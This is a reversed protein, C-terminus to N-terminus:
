ENKRILRWYGPKPTEINWEKILKRLTKISVDYLKALKYQPSEWILNQLNERCKLKEKLIEMTEKHESFNRIKRKLGLKYPYCVNIMENFIRSGLTLVYFDENKRIQIKYKVDLANKIQLLLRFNSSGIETSNKHGDGSYYGMLFALLLHRNRRETLFDPILYKFGIRELDLALPKCTFQLYTLRREKGYSIRKRERIKDRAISLTKCFDFLIKKDNASIEISIQYRKRRHSESYNQLELHGDAWLFGLWFAKPVSDIIRFFHSKIEPNFIHFQQRINDKLDTNIKEYANINDICVNANEGFRDKLTRRFIALDEKSFYLNPNHHAANANKIKYKTRSIFGKYKGIYQDLSRISALGNHTSRDAILKGIERQLDKILDLTSYKNSFDL